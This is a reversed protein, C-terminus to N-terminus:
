MWNFTTSNIPKYKHFVVTQQRHHYIKAKQLGNYAIIVDRPTDILKRYQIFDYTSVNPDPLTIVEDSIKIEISLISNPQIQQTYNNIITTNSSNGSDSEDYECGHGNFDM